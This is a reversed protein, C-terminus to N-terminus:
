FFPPPSFSFCSAASKSRISPSGMRSAASDGVCFRRRRRHWSGAAPPLHVSSRQEGVFCWRGCVESQVQVRVVNPKAVGATLLGLVVGALRLAKAAMPMTGAGQERSTSCLLKNGRLPERDRRDPKTSPAGHGSSGGSVRCDGLSLLYISFKKLYLFPSYPRSPPLEIRRYGLTPKENGPFAWAFFVRVM